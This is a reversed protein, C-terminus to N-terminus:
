KPHIGLIYIYINLGRNDITSKRNKNRQTRCNDPPLITTHASADSPRNWDFRM